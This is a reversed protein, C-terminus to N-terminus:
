CSGDTGGVDGNIGSSVFGGTSYRGSGGVSRYIWWTMGASFLWCLGAIYVATLDGSQDVYAAYGIALPLGALLLLNIIQIIM